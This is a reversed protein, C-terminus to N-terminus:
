SGGTSVTISGSSSHVTVPASGSGVTGTVLRRTLTEPRMAGDIDITGSTTRLELRCGLRSGLGIRVDGSASSVSAGTLPPTLHAEVEGSVTTVSIKGSAGRLTVDGSSTRVGPDHGAKRVVVDGSTSEIWLSDSAAEITVDGSSTAVNYVGPTGQVDVNGSATAIKGARSDSLTVDGSATSVTIRGAAGNVSVEGSSTRLSQATALDQTALDGSSSSMELTVHPPVQLSLQVEVKPVSLNGFDEWVNVHISQSKPYRVRIVYRSGERQLEVATQRALEKANDTSSGRVIKLAVVHLDADPSPRAEIRGRTNQVTVQTLGTGPISQRSQERWADATAAAPILLGISGILVVERVNM